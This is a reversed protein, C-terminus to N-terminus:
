QIKPDASFRPLSSTISSNGACPFQQGDVPYSFRYFLYWKKVVATAAGQSDMWGGLGFIFFVSPKWDGAGVVYVCTCVNGSKSVLIDITGGARRTAKSITPPPSSVNRIERDEKLFSARM